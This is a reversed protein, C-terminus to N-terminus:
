DSLIEQVLRVNEEVMDDKDGRYMGLNVVDGPKINRYAYDLGMRADIRGAGLIKYAICPKALSRILRVSESMDEIVFREGGDRSHVSGCNFFPVAHFDVLGLSDVWRHSDPNHAAVGIRLNHGRAIKVWERLTAEDKRAYFDDVLAGHFYAAVAGMEVVGALAQIIDPINRGNVQAIWKMPGGAALYTRTTNVVHPTENNTVFTNIGAKWARDWTELIREQTHYERMERDREGNQHSYGGFPNAGILLRTMPIGCFDVTPLMGTTEKISKLSEQM